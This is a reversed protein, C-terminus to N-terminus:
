AGASALGELAGFYAASLLSLAAPLDLGDDRLDLIERPDFIINFLFLAHDFHRDDIGKSRM